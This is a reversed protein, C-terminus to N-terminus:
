GLKLLDMLYVRNSVRKATKVRADLALRQRGKIEVREKTSRWGRYSKLPKCGEHLEAM